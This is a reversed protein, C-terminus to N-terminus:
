RKWNVFLIFTSYKSESRTAEQLSNKFFEVVDPQNLNKTANTQIGLNSLSKDQDEKAVPTSVEKQVIQVSPVSKIVDRTQECFDRQAEIITEELAESCGEILGKSEEALVVFLDDHEKLTDELYENLMEILNERFATVGLSLNNKMEETISEFKAAAQRDTEPKREQIQRIMDENAKEEKLKKIYEDKEKILKVHNQIEATKEDLDEKIIKVDRLFLTKTRELEKAQMKISTEMLKLREKIDLSYDEGEYKVPISHLWDHYDELEKQRGRQDKEIEELTELKKYFRTHVNVEDSNLISVPGM